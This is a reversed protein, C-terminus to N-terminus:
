AGPWAATLDPRHLKSGSMEACAPIWFFGSLGVAVAAPHGSERPRAPFPYTSIMRVLTMM